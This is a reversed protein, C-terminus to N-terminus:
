DAIGEDDQDTITNLNSIILKSYSCTCLVHLSPPAHEGLSYFFVHVSAKFHSKVYVIEKEKRKLILIVKVMRSVTKNSYRVSQEILTNRDKVFELYSFIPM